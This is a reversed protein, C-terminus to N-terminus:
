RSPTTVSLAPEGALYEIYTLIPTNELVIRGPVSKLEAKGLELKWKILEIPQVLITFDMMIRETVLALWAMSLEVFILLVDILHVSKCNIEASIDILSELASLFCRVSLM